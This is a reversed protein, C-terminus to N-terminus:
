RIVLSYLLITRKWLRLQTAVELWIHKFSKMKISHSPRSLYFFLSIFLFPHTCVHFCPNTYRSPSLHRTSTTIPSIWLRIVFCPLRNIQPGHAPQLHLKARQKDIFFRIATATSGDPRSTPTALSASLWRSSSANATRYAVRSTNIRKQDSHWAPAKDVQWRTDSQGKGGTISETCRDNRIRMEIEATKGPEPRRVGGAPSKRLRSEILICSTSRHFREMILLEPQGPRRSCSRLSPEDHAAYHVTLCKQISHILGYLASAKISRKISCKDDSACWRHIAAIITPWEYQEYFAILHLHSNVPMDTANVNSHQLLHLTKM